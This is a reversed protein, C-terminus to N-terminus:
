IYIILNQIFKLSPNIVYRKQSLYDIAQNLNMNHIKILYYLVLTASRSRGMMCHVLVKNNDKKIFDIMDDLEEKKFEDNGDDKLQLYYYEINDHYNPIDYSINIIKKINLQELLNINSANFSSGLYINDIIYSCNGFLANINDLYDNDNNKLALRNEKYNKNLLRQFFIYSIKFFSYTYYYSNTIFNM